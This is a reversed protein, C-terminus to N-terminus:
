GGFQFRGGVFYGAMPDTSDDILMALHTHDGPNVGGRIRGFGGRSGGLMVVLESIPHIVGYMRGQRDTIKDTVRDGVVPCGVLRQPIRPTVCEKCGRVGKPCNQQAHAPTWAPHPIDPLPNMGNPLLLDQRDRSIAILPANKHSLWDLTISSWLQTQKESFPAMAEARKGQEHFHRAQESSHYRARSQSLGTVSRQAEFVVTVLRGLIIYDSRTVTEQQIKLRDALKFTPNTIVSHATATAM